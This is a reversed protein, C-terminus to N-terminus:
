HEGNESTHPPIEHHNQNTNVQHGTIHLMKKHAQHGHRHRGRHSKQEHRKSM